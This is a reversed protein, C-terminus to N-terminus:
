KAPVLIEQGQDCPLSFHETTSLFSKRCCRPPEFGVLEPFLPLPCIPQRVQSHSVEQHTTEDRMFLLLALVSVQCHNQLLLAAAPHQTRSRSSNTNDSSSRLIDPMGLIMGKQATGQRHSEAEKRIELLCGQGARLLSCSDRTHHGCCNPYTVRIKPAKHFYLFLGTRRFMFNLVQRLLLTNLVVQDRGSGAQGVGARTRPNNSHKLILTFLWCDHIQAPNNILFQHWHEM